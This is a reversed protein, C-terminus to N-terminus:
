RDWKNSRFGLYFSNQKCLKLPVVLTVNLFALNKSFALSPVSLMHRLHLGAYASPLGARRTGPPPLKSLFGGPHPYLHLASLIIHDLSYLDM